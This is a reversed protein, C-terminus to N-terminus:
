YVTSGIDPSQGFESIYEVGTVLSGNEKLDFWRYAPPETSICFQGSGRRFQICSSPSTYVPVTGWLGEFKQHVHGTVVGKINEQESVIKYLEEANDLKHKDLWPSGICIPCHHMSILVFRDSLRNLAEEARLLETDSIHGVPTGSQSSDLSLIAWNDITKVRQFPFDRLHKRMLVPNDHNGPLWVVKKNRNKLLQNLIHYSNEHSVGSLDGSLLILEEEYGNKKLADLVAIFSDLPNIGALFTDSSVGLHLDTIQILKSRPMFSALLRRYGM